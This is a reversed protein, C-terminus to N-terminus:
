DYLERVKFIITIRENSTVEDFMVRLAQKTDRGVPLGEKDDLRGVHDVIDYIVDGDQDLLKMSWVTNKNEPIIILHQILGHMGLTLCNGKGGKIKVIFKTKDWLM